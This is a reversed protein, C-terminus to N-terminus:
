KRFAYRFYDFPDPDCFYLIITIIFMGGCIGIAILENMDFPPTSYKLFLVLANALGIMNLTTFCMLCQACLEKGKEVKSVKDKLILYDSDTFEDTYPIDGTEQIIKVIKYKFFCNILALIMFILLPVM